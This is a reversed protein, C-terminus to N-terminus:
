RKLNGNKDFRKRLAVETIIIPVAILVSQVVVIISGAMGVQDESGGFFFLIAAISFPLMIAGLIFWLKGCVMHAYKWTADNKTSMRSRYGFAPNNRRPTKRVFLIGLVIVTVPCLLVMFFMSVWFGM